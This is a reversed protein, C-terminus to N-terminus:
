FQSARVRGTSRRRTTEMDLRQLADMEMPKYRDAAEYDKIINQSLEWCARYRILNEAETTWANEQSDSLSDLRVHAAIRATMSGTGDPIPYLRIEQGYYAYDSPLGAVGNMATQEIWDYDRRYIPNPTGSQIVSFSDIEILNPIYPSDNVGYFEQSSSLTFEINRKENFWFRTGEYHSIASSVAKAIQSGMDDRDLDDAILAKLEALTSM